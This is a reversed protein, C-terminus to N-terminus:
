FTLYFRLKIKIIPKITLVKHLDLDVITQTLFLSPLYRASKTM